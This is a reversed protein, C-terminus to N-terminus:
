RQPKVNGYLGWSLHQKDLWERTPLTGDSDEAKEVIEMVGNRVALRHPRLEFARPQLRRWRAQHETVLAQDYPMVDVSGWLLSQHLLSGRQTVDERFWDYLEPSELWENDAGYFTITWRNWYGKTPANDLRCQYTRVEGNRTVTATANFHERDAALALGAILALTIFVRM